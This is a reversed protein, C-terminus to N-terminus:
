FGKSNMAIYLMGIILLFFITLGIALMKRYGHGDFNDNPPGHLHAFM